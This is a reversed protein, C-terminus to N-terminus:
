LTLDDLDPNFMAAKPKKKNTNYHLKQYRKKKPKGLFQKIALTCAQQQGSSTLCLM